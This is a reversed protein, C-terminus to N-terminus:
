LSVEGERDGETCPVKQNNVCFVQTNGELSAVFSIYPTWDFADEDRDIWQQLYRRNGPSYDSVTITDCYKSASIVSTISPGTGLDLLDGHVGDSEALM